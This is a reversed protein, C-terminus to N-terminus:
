EHPEASLDVRIVPAERMLAAASTSTLKTPAHKQRAVREHCNSSTVPRRPDIGFDTELAQVQLDDSPIIRTSPVSRLFARGAVVVAVSRWQTPGTSRTPSRASGNARASTSSMGPFRICCERDRRTRGCCV